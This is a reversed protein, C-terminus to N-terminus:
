SGLTYRFDIAIWNKPQEILLRVRQPAGRYRELRLQLDCSTGLCTGSGTWTGDLEPDATLEIGSDVVLKLPDLQAFLDSAVRARAGASDAPLLSGDELLLASGVSKVSVHAGNWWGQWHFQGSSLDEEASGFMVVPQGPSEFEWTADVKWEGAAIIEGLAEAAVDTDDAKGCGSLATLAFLAATISVAVRWRKGLMSLM